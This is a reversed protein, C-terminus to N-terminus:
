GNVVSWPGWRVLAQLVLNAYLAAMLDDAMIGSSGPLKELRRCPFPKLIDFLRFFFFGALATGMSLPIWLLSLMQGAIEDIVVKGPDRKGFHTEARGASWFGLATVALMGALAAPWGGAATLGAHLAVGLASGFTGPVLPAYGVGCGTSVVVHLRM